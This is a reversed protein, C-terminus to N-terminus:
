PEEEAEEARVYDEGFSVACAKTKGDKTKGDKMGRYGPPVPPIKEEEVMPYGERVPANTVSPDSWHSKVHSVAQVLNEPTMTTVDSGPGRWDRDRRILTQSPQLEGKEWETIDTLPGPKSQSLFSM